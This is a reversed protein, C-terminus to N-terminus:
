AKLKKELIEGVVAPNAKGRSLKMVQGKLFNLAAAKGAKFDSAPGPHAAIVEDCFIELAATDSLQALGKKEVIVAPSEGTAFMEGFVEQGIKSSIKGSDVLAVLEVVQRPQIAVQALPTQTETLKARLNNIVWNAPSQPEGRGPRRVRFFEGAARRECVDGCRRGSASLPVHVAAQAGPAARRRAGEGRRAM